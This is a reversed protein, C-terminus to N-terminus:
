GGADLGAALVLVGAAGLVLAVVLVARTYPLGQGLRLAREVTSWRRYAWLPLSLGLLALLVTLATRAGTVLFPDVFQAVALAGALLALSTRIWALFTRENALSFRADPDTGQTRWDGTRDTGV